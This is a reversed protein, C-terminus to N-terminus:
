GKNEENIDANNNGILGLLEYIKHLTASFIHNQENDMENIKSLLCFNIYSQFNHIGDDKLFCDIPIELVMSIKYLAELSPATESKKSEINQIHSLSFDTLEALKAQTLGRAKRFYQINSGIKNFKIGNYIPEDMFVRGKFFSM